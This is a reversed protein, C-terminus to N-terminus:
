PKLPLQERQDHWTLGPRSGIYERLTREIVEPEFSEVIIGKFRNSKDMARTVAARTAGLVGFYESGGDGVPGISLTFHGFDDWPEPRETAVFDEWGHYDDPSIERLEAGMTNGTDEPPIKSWADSFWHNELECSINGFWARRHM